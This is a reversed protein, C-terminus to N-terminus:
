TVEHSLDRRVSDCSIAWYRRLASVTSINRSVFKRTLLLKEAHFKWVVDESGLARWPGCVVRCLMLVEPDSRKFVLELVEHPLWM